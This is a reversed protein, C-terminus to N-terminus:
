LRNFGPITPATEWPQPTNWPLDSDGQTTACGGALLVACVMLVVASFGAFAPLRWGAPRRVARRGM